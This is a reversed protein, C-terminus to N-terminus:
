GKCGLLVVDAKREPPVVELSVVANGKCEAEVTTNHFAPLKFKVDIDNPLAAFLLIPTNSHNWPEVMATLNPKGADASVNLNVPGNQLLMFQLATRMQAPHEPEPFSNTDWRILGFFGPFIM